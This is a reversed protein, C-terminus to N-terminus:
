EVVLRKTDLIKDNSKLTVFYIGGALDSVDIDTSKTGISVPVSKKVQGLLNRVEVLAQNQNVSHYITVNSTAPNPMLSTLKSVAKNEKVSTPTANFHVTVSVTDNNDSLNQIVYRIVSEGTQGLPKYDMYMTNFTAGPNLIVNGLSTDAWPSYCSEWCFYNETGSVLSLERRFMRLTKPSSGINKVILGELSYINNGPYDAIDFWVNYTGNSYDVNDKTITLEQAKAFFTIAFAFILFSLIKKM